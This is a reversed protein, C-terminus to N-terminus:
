SQTKTQYSLKVDIQYIDSLMVNLESIFRQVMPHTYLQFSAQIYQLAPDNLGLEPNIVETFLPWYKRGTAVRVILRPKYNDMELYTISPIWGTRKYSEPNLNIKM